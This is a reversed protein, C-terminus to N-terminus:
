LSSLKKAQCIEFAPLHLGAIIINIICAINSQKENNKGRQTSLNKHSVSFVHIRLEYLNYTAHQNDAYTHRQAIKHKKLVFINGSVATHWFLKRLCFTNFLM